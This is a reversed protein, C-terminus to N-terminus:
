SKLLSKLKPLTVKTGKKVVGLEWAIGLGFAGMGVGLGDSDVGEGVDM